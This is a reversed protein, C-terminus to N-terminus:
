KFCRAAKTAKKLCGKCKGSPNPKVSTGEFDELKAVCTVQEDMTPAKQLFSTSCATYYTVTTFKSFLFCLKSAFFSFGVCNHVEADCAMACTDFTANTIPKMLMDGGCTSPVGTFDKDVFYMLPYYQKSANMTDKFEPSALHVLEELAEVGKDASTTLEKMKATIGEAESVQKLTTLETVGDAEKAAEQLATAVKAEDEASHLLEGAFVKASQMLDAAVPDGADGFAKQFAEASGQMEGSLDEAKGVIASLSKEAAAAKDGAESLQVATDACEHMEFISSKLAGGCMQTNDGDCVADCDSSDGAMPKYYPACYCDRGHIIGFFVMDPVTRCFEFCIEHTMPHRDEKKVMETYHVISVNSVEGLKYSYKGDGHKDGHVFLEDKACEVQYFGDKFVKDFPELLEPEMGAGPLLTSAKRAHLALPLHKQWCDEAYHRQVAALSARPVPVAGTLALGAILLAAM